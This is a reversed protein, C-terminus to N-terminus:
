CCLSSVDVSGVLVGVCALTLSNVCVCVQPLEHLPGIVTMTDSTMDFSCKKSILFSFSSLLNKIITDIQEAAELLEAFILGGSTLM